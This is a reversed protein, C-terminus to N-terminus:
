QKTKFLLRVLKIFAQRYSESTKEKINRRRWIYEEVYGGIAFGPIGKRTKIDTKFLSWECEILNTHYGESNKFGEQHNVVIHVGEIGAVSYPYSKHGDTKVVANDNINRKFFDLMTEKRRNPVIELVLERTNEEVAGVIWTARQISDYMLSPSKILKGKIIVSEDVQVPEYLGIKRHEEKNDIDIIKIIKRKIRKISNLSVNSNKEINYEFNKELWCYIIFLYESFNIKPNSFNSGELISKSKRCSSCRLRYNNSYSPDLELRMEGSCNQCARREEILGIDLLFKFAANNDTFI